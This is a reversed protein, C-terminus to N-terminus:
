TPLYELVGHVMNMNSTRIVMNSITRCSSLKRVIITLMHVCWERSQPIVRIRIGIDQCPAVLKIERPLSSSKLIIGWLKMFQM